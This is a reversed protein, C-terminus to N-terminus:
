NVLAWYEQAYKEKDLGGEECLALAVAKVDKPLDNFGKQRSSNIGAMNSGTNGEVAQVVRKQPKKIPEIGQIRDYDPYNKAIFKLMHEEAKKVREEPDLGKFAEYRSRAFQAIEVDEFETSNFIDKYKDDFEILAACPLSQQQKEIKTVTEEDGQRIAQKRQEELEIRQRALAEERERKAARASAEAARTLSDVKENLNKIRNFLPTNSEWEEASKKGDPDWGNALAQQEIETYVRETQAEANEQSSLGTETEENYFDEDAIAADAMSQRQNNSM